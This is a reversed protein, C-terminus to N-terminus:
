IGKGGLHQIIRDTNELIEISNFVKNSLAKTSANLMFLFFIAVFIALQPLYPSFGHTSSM